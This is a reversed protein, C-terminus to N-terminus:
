QANENYRRGAGVFTFVTHSWTEFSSVVSRQSRPTVSSAHGGRHRGGRPAYEDERPRGPRLRLRLAKARRLREEPEGQTTEGRRHGGQGAHVEKGHGGIRLRETLVPLAEALPQPVSEGGGGGQPVLRDHDHRSVNGSQTKGLESPGEVEEALPRDHEARRRVAAHVEQAAPSRGLVDEVAHAPLGAEHEVVQERSCPRRGKQGGEAVEVGSGVEGPQHPRRGGIRGEDAKQALDPRRSRAAGRWFLLAHGGPGSEQSFRRATGGRRGSGGRASM